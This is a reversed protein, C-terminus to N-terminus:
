LPETNSLNIYGLSDMKKLIEGLSDRRIFFHRELDYSFEAVFKLVPTYKLNYNTKLDELNIYNIKLFRIFDKGPEVGLINLETHFVVVKPKNKNIDRKLEEKISDVKDMAPMLYYYRSASKAKSYFNSAPDYPGILYYDDPSLLSDSYYSVPHIQYIPEKSKLIDEVIWLWRNYFFQVFSISYVILLMSGSWFIIKMLMNIKMSFINWLNFLVFVGNFLSLFVYASSHFDLPGPSFPENRANTYVVSLFSFIFLRLKKTLLLYLWLLSNSLLLAPMFPFQLNFQNFSLLLDKYKLLAKVALVYGLDFINKAKAAEGYIYYEKNFIATQFYFDDWSGSLLLYGGYLIYPATVGFGVKLLKKRERNELKSFYNLFLFIYAFLVAFFYTYSTLLTLFCLLSIIYFTTTSLVKNKFLAFFILIYAGTLFIGALNDAVLLYGWFFNSCLATIIFFIGLSVAEKIGYKRLIAYCLLVEASWLIYQYIVKFSFLDKKSILEILAALYYPAPGHNSFFDKYLIGGKNIVSGGLLNDYEDTFSVQLANTFNLIFVLLLIFIFIAIKM